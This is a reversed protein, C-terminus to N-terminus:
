TQAHSPFYATQQQQQQQQQQRHQQQHQQLGTDTTGHFFFDIADQSPQMQGPVPLSPESPEQWQFNMPSNTFPTNSYGAPPFHDTLFSIGTYSSPHAEQQPAHPYDYAYETVTPVAVPDPLPPYSYSGLGTSPDNLQGQQPFLSYDTFTSPSVFDAPPLTSHITNTVFQDIQGAASMHQAEYLYQPAAPTTTTINVQAESLISPLPPNPHGPRSTWSEPCGRMQVTTGATGTLAIRRSPSSGYDNRNEGTQVENQSRPRPSSTYALPNSNDLSVQRTPLAPQNHHTDNGQFEVEHHSAADSQPLPRNRPVIENQIVAQRQSVSSEQLSDAKPVLDFHDM